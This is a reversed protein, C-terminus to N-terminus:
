GDGQKRPKLRMQPSGVLLLDSFTRCHIQEKKCLYFYNSKRTSRFVEIAVIARRTWFLGSTSVYSDPRVPLEEQSLLYNIKSVDLFLQVKPNRSGFPDISHGAKSSVFPGNRPSRRILHINKYFKKEFFRNVWDVHKILQGGSWRFLRQFWRGSLQLM